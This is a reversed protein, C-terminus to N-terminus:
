IRRLRERWYSARRHQHVIALVAILKDGPKFVVKYPFRNFLAKRTGHEDKPFSFPEVEIRDLLRDLEDLFAEAAEPNREQYYERAEIGEEVAEAFIDLTM